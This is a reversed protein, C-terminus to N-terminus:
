KSRILIVHQKFNWHSPIVGKERKNDWVALRDGIKESTWFQREEDDVISSAEEITPLRWQPHKEIYESV